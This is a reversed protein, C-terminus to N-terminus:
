RAPTLLRGRPADATVDLPRGALWTQTVVGHLARGAYPTAPRRHALAAPDVTFTRDPAVVCFDADKGPAIAGKGPLGALQAPGTSMWRVVEALPVGRSHAATWVVALGLQLSAIGPAAADFDGAAAGPTPAAPSHDTVVLGLDGARLHEWLAQTDARERVPPAVAFVTAGDPVDPAAFTLYHPCTEATVPLGARRARAVVAAGAASSVHVVHARGATEAV